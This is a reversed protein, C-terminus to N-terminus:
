EEAKLIYFGILFEHMIKCMYEGVENCRPCGDYSAPYKTGTLLPRAMADCRYARHNCWVRRGSIEIGQLEITLLEDCLIEMFLCNVDPKEDEMFLAVLEPHLNPPQVFLLTVEWFQKGSNKFPSFGDVGLDFIIEDYDDFASAAVVNIAEVLGIYLLQGGTDVFSIKDSHSSYKPTRMLSRVDRPLDQFGEINANHLSKLIDNANNRSQNTKSFAAALNERLRIAGLESPSCSEVTTRLFFMTLMTINVQTVAYLFSVFIFILDVSNVQNKWTVKWKVIWCKM